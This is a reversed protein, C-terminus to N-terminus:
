DARPELGQRSRSRKRSCIQQGFPSYDTADSSQMFAVCSKERDPISTVYGQLSGGVPDPIHASRGDSRHPDADHSGKKMWVVVSNESREASYENDRVSEQVLNSIYEQDPDADHSHNNPELQIPVVNHLYELAEATTRYKSPACTPHTKQKLPMTADPFYRWFFIDASDNRISVATTPTGRQHVLLVERKQNRHKQDTNREQHVFLIESKQNRHTKEDDNPYLGRICM